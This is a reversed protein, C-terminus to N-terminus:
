INFNLLTFIKIIKIYGSVPFFQQVNIYQLSFYKDCNVNQRTCTCSKDAKWFLNVTIEITLWM